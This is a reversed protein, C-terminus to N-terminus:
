AALLAARGEETIFLVLDVGACGRSGVLSRKRLATFTSENLKIPNGKPVFEEYAALTQLMKTQAANLKM